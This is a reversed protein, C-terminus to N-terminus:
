NPNSCGPRRVILSSHGDEGQRIQKDQLIVCWSRKIYDSSWVLRARESRRVQNLRWLFYIIKNMVFLWNGTLRHVFYLFGISRKWMVDRCGYQHELVIFRRRHQHVLGIRQFNFEKRIYVSGKTETFKCTHQGRSHFREIPKTVRLPVFLKIIDFYNSSSITWSLIKSCYLIM